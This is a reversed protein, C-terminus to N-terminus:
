NRHSFSYCYIGQCVRSIKILQEHQSTLNAAKLLKFGLFDDTIVTGHRRLKNYNQDFDIMFQQMSTDPDRKYSEFKELDEFKENLEDKKYLDNLKSIIRDVGQESSIQEDSLELISDLAKGQLTMVLAPGQKGKDLDTFKTWLKVLRVWDSYSKSKSLQPPIKHSATAM